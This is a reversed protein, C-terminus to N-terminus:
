TSLDITAVGSGSFLRALVDNAEAETSYPLPYLGILSNAENYGQIVWTSDSGRVAVERLSELQIWSFEAPVSNDYRKIWKTM